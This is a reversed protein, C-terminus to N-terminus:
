MQWAGILFIGVTIKNKNLMNIAFIRQVIAAALVVIYGSDQAAPNVLQALLRVLQCVALIVLFNGLVMLTAARALVVSTMM